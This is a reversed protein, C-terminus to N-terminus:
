YILQLKDIEDLLRRDSLSEYYERRIKTYEVLQNIIEIREQQSM